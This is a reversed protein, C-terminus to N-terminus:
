ENKILCGPSPLCCLVFCIRIGARPTQSNPLCVFLRVFILSLNYALFARLPFCLHHDSLSSPTVPFPRYLSSCKPQSRFSSNRPLFENMGEFTERTGRSNQPWTCNSTFATFAAKSWGRGLGKRRFLCVCSLSHTDASLHYGWPLQPSGRLCLSLWCLPGAHLRQLLPPDLNRPTLCVPHAM